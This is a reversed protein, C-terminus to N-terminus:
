EFVEAVRRGGALISPKLYIALAALFILGWIGLAAVYPLPDMQRFIVSLPFAFLITEATLVAGMTALLGYRLFVGGFFAGQLAAFILLAALPSAVAGGLSLGPVLWLMALVALILSRRSTAKTLLSLPFAVFLWAVVLSDM